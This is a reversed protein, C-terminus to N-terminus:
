KTALITVTVPFSEDTALLNDVHIEELALGHLFATAAFVNGFAEVAIKDEGFVNGFLRKASYKTLSWFWTEKWERRDIPTIGPATALLVGGPRLSKHLERIALDMDYILHLTQTFIICDFAEAPLTGPTAVDGVITVEPARDSVHLVDQREVRAGGFRRSYAADGIELVRGRILHANQELFREIYFRDVPTGRDFGYCASLPKIRNMSRLKLRTRLRSGTLSLKRLVKLPLAPMSWGDRRGGDLASRVAPMGDTFSEENQM